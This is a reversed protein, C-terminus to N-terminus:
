GARRILTAEIEVVLAARCIEGHLYSVVDGTRLLARELIRQAAGLDGAHRLYVKFHRTAGARALDDGIGAARGILRLNRLTCDLQPELQGPAVTQHGTIAATGSIFVYDHGDARAVTARAFSPPRPGHEPPYCYAPVQEPNEFHRPADRGAVFIAEIHPGRSGVASAAPLRPHFGAGLAHEFALSRGQCFARYHELGATEANIQPVYNWIRYLHRGACAGIIRRYLAESRAALDAAAFPERARGVLLDGSRFLECGRETGVPVAAPFLEETPAGALWPTEIHVVSAAPGAPAGAFTVCLPAAVSRAPDLAALM